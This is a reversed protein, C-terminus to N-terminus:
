RIITEEPQRAPREVGVQPPAHPAVATPEPSDLPPAAPPESEAAPSSVRRDVGVAERAEDIFEHGKHVMGETDARIAGKEITITSREPTNQFKIWGVLMLLLVAAALALVVRM